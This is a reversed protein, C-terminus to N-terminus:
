PNRLLRFGLHKDRYDPNDPARHSSRCTYANHIWSGGRIVRRSGSTPGTPDTVSSSPYTGYWDQCWEWVNGHMDYLGWANPNKQAISQTSDNSNYCYWGMVDLNPDYSCDTVTIDGNAFATTTGARASYEWEAETPLRYTGEGWTNLETIFTQVDDWSVWEVPCDSCGSFYSPNSGMVAVWQTQTVETSQMYFSQTLTVEHQTEETERGLEDTPSGMTFTGASIFKFTMDLSNIYDIMQDVEITGANTTQGATVDIGSKEGRHTVNGSSDKGLIVIKRNSGASVNEITGAHADCNWPGGGVLYNDNEDYIEGEVTAVGSTACNLARTIASSFTGKITPAGIWEVSFSISGTDYSSHNAEGCASIFLLLFICLIYYLLTNLRQRTITFFKM